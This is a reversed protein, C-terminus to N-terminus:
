RLALTKPPEGRQFVLSARGRPTRADVTNLQEAELEFLARNVLAVQRAAPPLPFEFYLWAAKVSVEMGIWRPAVPRRGSAASADPLTVLFKRRVYRRALPASERAQDLAVPRTVGPLRSLARALDEPILRLAVELAGTEENLEIEALSAHYPHAGVDRAAGVILAGAALGAVRGLLQRRLLM